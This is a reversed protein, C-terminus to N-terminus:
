RAVQITVSSGELAELQDRTAQYTGLRPVQDSYGGHANYYFIIDGWPAYYSFDGNRPESGPTGATNLKRPLYAIKESNSYDEFELTLPLMSVFDRAAPTNRDITVDIQTGGSTFRVVTGAVNSGPAPATASTASSPSAPSAPSASQTAPTSPSTPSPADATTPPASSSRTAPVSSSDDTTCGALLGITAALGALPTTLKKITTAM